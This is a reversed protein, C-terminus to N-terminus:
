PEADGEDAPNAPARLVRGRGGRGRLLDIKPSATPAPEVADASPAGCDHDELRIRLKCDRAEVAYRRAWSRTPEVLLVDRFADYASAWDRNERAQLGQAMWRDALPHAIEAVRPHRHNWARAKVLLDRAVVPDDSAAASEAFCSALAMSAGGEHTEDFRTRTTRRRGLRWLDEAEVCRGAAAAREAEVLNAMAHADIEDVSRIWVADAWRVEAVAFVPDAAPPTESGELPPAVTGAPDDYVVLGLDYNGLPLDEPVPVSHRGLVVEGVGWERPRYWDYGPPLDWSHVTGDAGALFLVVRFDEGKRRDQQVSWAAEVYLHRGPAGEGAPVHWGELTLGKAYSARRGGPGEWTPRVILDKRVHNGVHHSRKGTPYPPIELYTEDWEDFRKLGSSSAWGGHVHAFHPRTEQFVYEGMFARDFWRHAMPVDVLGAIDVIRDGSWYMTAGMDVDMNVPQEDLHLHAQVWNMYDARRKVKWPSTTPKGWFRDLHSLSPVAAFALGGLALTWALPGWRLRADRWRQAGFGLGVGIIVLAAGGLIVWGSIPRVHLNLWPIKAVPPVQLWTGGVIAGVALVSAVVVGLWPVRRDVPVARDALEGFGVALLVSGPVTWTAFWRYGGMWDGGAYISFFVAAVTVSACLSLAAWGRRGVSGVVALGAVAVLVWIRAETWWTPLTPRWGTASVMWDPGPILLVVGVAVLGIVFLAGRVGRHGLLALLYVPLLYGQGLSHAWGRVYKWGKRTWQFPEFAKSPNGKKAYYTNPLEWAFYDYRWLQYLGFPGFFMLLWALTPSMAKWLARPLRRPEVMADVLEPGVRDARLVMSWFGGIAAYLVGEPRTMAVGVWALASWPVGGRRGEVLGRWIAVALLLNLLSNELGGASWIAFQASVALLAAALIPVADARHPRAERAIAWTVPVTVTGFVVGMIKNSVFGDVGVAYFGALLFTWLPNSYGEVREGGPYTVLGEGAAFHRAYAFSIAADEVIWKVLTLQLGVAVVILLLLWGLHLHPIPRSLATSASRRWDAVDEGPRRRSASLTAFCASVLGVVILTAGIGVVTGNLAPRTSFAAAGVLVAAGGGVGSLGILALGVARELGSAKPAPAEPVVAQERRDLAALQLLGQVVAGLGAGAVALCGGWVLARWAVVTLPADLSPAPPEWWGLAFFGGLALVLGGVLWALGPTLLRRWPPRKAPGPDAATSM